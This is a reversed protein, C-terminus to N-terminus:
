HFQNTNLYYEQNADAGPCLLAALRGAEQQAERISEFAVPVYPKGPSRACVVFEFTGIEAIVGVAAHFERTGCAIEVVGEASWGDLVQQIQTALPASESRTMQWFCFEPEM